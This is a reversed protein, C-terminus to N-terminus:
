QTLNFLMMVGGCTDPKPTAAHATIALINLGLLAALKLVRKM